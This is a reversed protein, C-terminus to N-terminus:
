ALEGDGEFALTCCDSGQWADDCECAGSLCVGNLQCDNDTKCGSAVFSAVALATAQAVFRTVLMAWRRTVQGLATPCWWQQV